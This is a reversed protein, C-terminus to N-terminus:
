QPRRQLENQLVRIAAQSRRIETEIGFTARELSQLELLRSERIAVGPLNNFESAREFYRILNQVGQTHQQGLPTVDGYFIANQGIAGINRTLGDITDPHSDLNAQMQTIGRELVTILTRFDAPTATVDAIKKGHYIALGSLIGITAVVLVIIAITLITDSLNGNPDIRNVPDGCTYSYKHLSIPDDNNGSFSDLANFRGNLPNLYIRVANSWLTSAIESENKM